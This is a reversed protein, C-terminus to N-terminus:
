MTICLSDPIRDSPPLVKVPFQTHTHISVYIYNHDPLRSVALNVMNFFLYIEDILVVLLVM